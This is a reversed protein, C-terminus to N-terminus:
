KLLDLKWQETSEKRFPELDLGELQKILDYDITGKRMFPKFVMGNEDYCGVGESLEKLEATKEEEIKKMARLTLRMERLEAAVTSWQGEKKTLGKFLVSNMEM